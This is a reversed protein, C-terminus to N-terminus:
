VIMTMPKPNLQQDRLLRLRLNLFRLLFPLPFQNLKRLLHGPLQSQIIQHPHLQVANRKNRSKTRPM